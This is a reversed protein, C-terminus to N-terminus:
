AAGGVGALSGLRDAVTRAAPLSRAAIFITDDGAITGAMEAFPDDDLRAAVLQAQGPGTRVVVLQAVAEVSTVFERLARDREPETFGHTPIRYGDPGKVVGLERLDRSLTAQTVQTGQEALRRRLEDQSRVAGQGFIGEILHHREARASM